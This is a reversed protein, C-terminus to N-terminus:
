RNLELGVNWGQIYVDQKNNTTIIGMKQGVGTGIEYNVM